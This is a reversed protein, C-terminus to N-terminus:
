AKNDKTSDKLELIRAAFYNKKKPYKLILQEYIKIARPLNGQKEYVKALTETVFDEHEVLSLKAIDAPKFMTSRNPKSIQPNDSIFRDILASREKKKNPKTKEESPGNLKNLWNSFSQKGAQELLQNDTEIEEETPALTSEEDPLAPAAAMAHKLVELELEDVRRTHKTGGLSTIPIAGFTVETTEKAVSNDEEENTKPQEVQIIEEATKREIEEIQERLPQQFILKYLYTRDICQSAAFRLTSKYSSDNQEHLIKTRWLHVPQFFPYLLALDNLEDLSWESLLSPDKLTSIVKESLVV